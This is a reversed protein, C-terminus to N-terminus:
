KRLALPISLIWLALVAFTKNAQRWPAPDWIARPWLDTFCLSLAIGSLLFVGIAIRRQTRPLNQINGALFFYSPAFLVFTPSETRPSFLLLGGAGLTYWPGWLIKRRCLTIMLGASAVLIALRAGPIAPLGIRRMASDLDLIGAAGLDSTVARYWSELAQQNKSWGLVLAPVVLFLASQLLFRTNYRKRGIAFLPLAFLAPVVKLNTALALWGAAKGAKGDRFDAMGWLILGTLLANIQQYRLSIDLEVACFLLAVWTLWYSSKRVSVWRSIGAWFAFVNLLGWIEAQLSRPFSLLFG